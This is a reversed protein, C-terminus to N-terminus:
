RATSRTPLRCRRSPAPPPASTPRIPWLIVYRQRAEFGGEPGVHLVAGGRIDATGSVVVRDSATGDPDAEVEFRSGPEFVLDGAM